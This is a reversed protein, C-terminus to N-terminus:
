ILKTTGPSAVPPFTVPSNWDTILPALNEQSNLAEEWSIEQGTYAAMRGMIATLTSNAAREGDNIPKGARIAAFLENHENQYMNSRNDERYRWDTKGRIVFPGTFAKLIDAVGTAGIFHDSNDHACGGQQRCTHFGRTGNAYEYVVSFHDFIHGFEAATRTQRGGMAVCKVPTQDNMAWNMKDVNHVAQEVIHDGSLWTYYYWNKVQYQLDTWDPQRAFPSWVAGANYTNYMARIEGIEGDHIKQMLARVGNNYRYCFGTMFSLNKKRALEASALVSRIGPADTAVPKELFVHKGADIAAKVHLPRFGPPTTLLVVDVGSEIVKRYADLGVFCKEPTVQVKDPHATQLERLSSQLRGEFVDGMATLIVHSDAKLAENAAGSGRGGCGILGVRLTDSNETAFARGTLITPALLAGSILASSTSLFDRRSTQPIQAPTTM